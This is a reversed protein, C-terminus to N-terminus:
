RLKQLLSHFAARKTSMFVSPFSQPTSSARGTSPPPRPCTPPPGTSTVQTSSSVTGRSFSASCAAITNTRRPAPTNANRAAHSWATRLHPAPRTEFSTGYRIPVQPTVNRTCGPVWGAGIWVHSTDPPETLTVGSGVGVGTGVGFGVGVGVGVGVGFGVGVVFRSGGHGHGHGAPEPAPPEKKEVILTDTSLVMSAISAANRLASRTVKVPDIVGQEMLDGYALTAANFGQGRGLGAVKEVVVGGEEGANAAIWYTPANLATRVVKVGTLEYFADLLGRAISRYRSTALCYACNLSERYLTPDSYYFETTRGCINCRGAHSKLGAPEAGRLAL